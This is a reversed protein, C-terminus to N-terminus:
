SVSRETVGTLNESAKNIQIMNPLKIDVKQDSECYCHSNQIAANIETTVSVVLVDPDYM